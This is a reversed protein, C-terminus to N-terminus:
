PSWTYRGDVMEIWGDDVLEDLHRRITDLRETAIPEFRLYYYADERIASPVCRMRQGTNVWRIYWYLLEGLEDEDLAERLTAAIAVLGDHTETELDIDVLDRWDSLDITHLRGFSRPPATGDISIPVLKHATAARRAERRVHTSEVSRRSWLVVVCGANDIAKEIARSWVQGGRISRKDRWLHWGSEEGLVRELFEACAEDARSYSLVVDTEPSPPM